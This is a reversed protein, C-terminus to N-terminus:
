LGQRVEILRQGSFHAGYVMCVLWLLFALAAQVVLSNLQYTTMSM